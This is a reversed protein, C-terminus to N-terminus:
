KALEKISLLMNKSLLNLRYLYSVRIMEMIMMIKTFDVM